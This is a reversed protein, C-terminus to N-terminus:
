VLRQTQDHPTDLTGRALHFTALLVGLGMWALGLIKANTDASWLAHALVVTGLVPSVVPAFAAAVYVQVVFLVTAAMLVIM